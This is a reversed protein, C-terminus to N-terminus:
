VDGDGEYDCPGSSDSVGGEEGERGMERDAMGMCLGLLLWAPVGSSFATQTLSVAFTEQILVAILLGYGVMAAHARRRSYFYVAVSGLLTGILVLGIVGGELMIQLYYNHMSLGTAMFDGVEASPGWGLLPRQAIADMGTAWLEDRGTFFRRGLTSWSWAELAMRFGALSSHTAVALMVVVGAAVAALLAGFSLASRRIVRALHVVMVLGLGAIIGARAQYALALAFPLAGSVTVIWQGTRSRVAVYGLALLYMPLYGAVNPNFWNESGAVFVFAFFATSGILLLIYLVLFNREGEGRSGVGNLWGLALAGAAFMLQVGREMAGLDVHVMGIVFQFSILAVFGALVYMLWAHVRGSRVLELGVTALALALAAWIGYYLLPELPHNRTRALFGAAWLVGAMVTLFSLRALPATAVAPQVAHGRPGPM